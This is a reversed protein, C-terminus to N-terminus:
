DMKKPKGEKGWLKGNNWDSKRWIGEKKQKIFERVTVQTTVWEKQM